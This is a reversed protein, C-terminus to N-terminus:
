LDVEFKNDYKFKQKPIEKEIIPEQKVEIGLEKVLEEKINKKLKEYRRKELRIRLFNNFSTVAFMIGAWLLALKWVATTLFKDVTTEYYDARDDVQDFFVKQQRTLEDSFFKRTNKHEQQIQSVVATNVEQPAELGYIFSSFLILGIILCIIKRM